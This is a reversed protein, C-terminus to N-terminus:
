RERLKKPGSVYPEELICFRWPTDVGKSIGIRPTALTKPKRFGSPTVIRLSGELMNVGNQEAGLSLAQCLRGPGRCLDLDSLPKASNKQRNRRIIALGEVPKLARILVAAGFGAAGAAVNLCWHMGYSRYIYATGGTAFMMQNRTTQGCYSHGAPDTEDYAETEVIIAGLTGATTEHLLVRGLLDKALEQVDRRFFAPKLQRFRYM